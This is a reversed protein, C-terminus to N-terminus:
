KCFRNYLEEIMSKTKPDITSSEEMKEEGPYINEEAAEVGEHGAEKMYEELEGSESEEGMEPKIATVSMEAVVPKKSKKLKASDMGEINELISELAKIKSGKEKENLLM